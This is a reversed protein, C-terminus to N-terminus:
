VNSRGSPEKSHSLVDLTQGAKGTRYITCRRDDGDAEKYSPFQWTNVHIGGEATAVTSSYFRGTVAAVVVVVVFRKIQATQSPLSTGKWLEEYESYSGIVVVAVVCVVAFTPM